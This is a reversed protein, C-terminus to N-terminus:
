HSHLCLFEVLMSALGDVASGIKGSRGVILSADNSLGRRAM